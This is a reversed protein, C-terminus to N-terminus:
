SNSSSTDLGDWFVINRPAFDIVGASENLRKLPNSVKNRAVVVLANRIVNLRNKETRKEIPIRKFLTDFALRIQSMAFFVVEPADAERSELRDLQDSLEQPELRFLPSFTRALIFEEELSVDVIEKEM